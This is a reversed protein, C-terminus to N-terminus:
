FSQSHFFNAMFIIEFIHVEYNVKSKWEHIFSVRVVHIITHSALNYDQNFCTLQIVYFIKIKDIVYCLM